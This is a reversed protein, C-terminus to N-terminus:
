INQQQEVHMSGLCRSVTGTIEKSGRVARLVKDVILLDTKPGVM